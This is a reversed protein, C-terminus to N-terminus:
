AKGETKQDTDFSLTTGVSARYCQIGGVLQAHLVITRCRGKRALIGAAFRAGLFVSLSYLPSPYFLLLLSLSRSVSVLDEHKLVRYESTSLYSGRPPM